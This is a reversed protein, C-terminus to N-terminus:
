LTGWQSSLNVRARPVSLLLPAPSERVTPGITVPVMRGDIERWETRQPIRQPEPRHPVIAGVYPAPKPPPPKPRRAEAYAAAMDAHDRHWYRYPLNGAEVFHVVDGAGRLYTLRDNACKRTTSAMKALQDPTSGPNRLLLALFARSITPTAGKKGPARESWRAGCEACRIRRLRSGDDRVRSELVKGPSTHGCSRPTLDAPVSM